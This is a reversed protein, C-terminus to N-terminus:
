RRKVEQQYYKHARHEQNKSLFQSKGPLAQREKSETILKGM